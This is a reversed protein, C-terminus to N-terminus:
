LYGLPDVAGGGVRVEFHLHPGTSNGTSGVYAITQGQAVAGGSVAIGSAHAYATAIGNGHDLVVLNGYGGFWGAHIVTGPASAVIPAGYGCGLDVGQHMRGWRWGFPSTVGGACPWQFGGGGSPPPAGTSRSQAAQIKATLEASVAALAEVEALYAEKTQQVEELTERQQARSGELEQQTSILDDRVSRVQTTRVQVVRTAAEVSAKSKATKARARRIEVKAAGVQQAIRRDQSGIARVYDLQDLMETFSSASLIVELESPEDSKYIEVLRSNLREMAADFQERLFELRRTQVQYLETIKDLRERHLALDSELAAVQASVDGVDHELSRIRSTVADIQASLETERARAADIKAQLDGIKHDVAAKKDGLDGAAPAALFAAVLLLLPLRRAM